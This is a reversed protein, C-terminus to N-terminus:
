KTVPFSAPYDPDRVCLQYMFDYIEKPADKTERAKGVAFQSCKKQLAVPRWEFWYFALGGLMLTAIVGLSIAAGKYHPSM